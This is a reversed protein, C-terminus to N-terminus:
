AARHFLRHFNEATVAGLESVELGRLKALCHAVASLYKPENPRGRHPVPALYPSDTEILLRDLPVRRAVDRLPQASKFTVIGSFSIFFGLDLVQKAMEWDETFCHLVGQLDAAGEEILLRITDERAARSHVILPLRSARAARIHRRFREQQWGPDRGGSRYYDLGTEGIAAVRSDAALAVLEDPSPGDAALESPHVGASVSVQEFADVLKRMAPYQSLNIAVCLFRDVGAAIAAEMMQDFRGHYPALDVHDLHCHSDIM